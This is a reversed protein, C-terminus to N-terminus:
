AYKVAKKAPSAKKAEITGNSRIVLKSEPFDQATLQQLKKIVRGKEDLKPGGDGVQKVPIVQGKLFEGNRSVYVKMIPAFGNAGKLNFRRYTAFNGLSFIIFRGKYLDVARTVHPGHGFVVDAGADIALRSFKYV